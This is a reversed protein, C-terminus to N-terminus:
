GYLIEEDYMLIDGEYILFPDIVDWGTNASNRIKPVNSGVSIDIWVKGAGIAGPDDVQIYGIVHGSAAPLDLHDVM